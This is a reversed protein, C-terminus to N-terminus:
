GIFTLKSLQIPDTEGIADNLDQPPLLKEIGTEILLWM